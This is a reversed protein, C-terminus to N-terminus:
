VDHVLIKLVIKLHGTPGALLKEVKLVTFFRIKM